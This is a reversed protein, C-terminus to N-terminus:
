HNFQLMFDGSNGPNFIIYISSGSDDAVNNLSIQNSGEITWPSIKNWIWNGDPQYDFSYQRSYDIEEEGTFFKVMDEYTRLNNEKLADVFPKASLESPYDAVSILYSPGVSGNENSYTFSGYSESYANITILGKGSGDFTILMGDKTLTGSGDPYIEAGGILEAIKRLSMSKIDSDIYQKGGITLGESKLALNLIEAKSKKVMGVDPDDFTIEEDDESSEQAEAEVANEADENSEESEVTEVVADASESAEDSGCATFLTGVALTAVLITVLFKRKM